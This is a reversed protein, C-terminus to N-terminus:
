GREWTPFSSKAISDLALTLVNRDVNGRLSRSSDSQDNRYCYWCNRDVNGRLSRGLKKKM